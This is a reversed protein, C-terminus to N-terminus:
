PAADAWLEMSAKGAFTHMIGDPAVRRVLGGCVNRDIRRGTHRECFQSLVGESILVSGDSRVLIAEADVLPTDTAYMGDPARFSEGTGALTRITGDTEILRIVHNHEDNIFMRGDAAVAGGQPWNFRAQLAPGGDGTYGAIGVGAITSIQGKRDVRRIVHNGSDTIVLQGATDLFLGWPKRLRAKTAPGGDGERGPTGTGAITRIIGKPDVARIRNNGYDAIYLVGAKDVRVDFPRNLEAERALGHDGSDGRRGTGAVRILRGDNDIRLVKNNRSDAFYLRGQGDVCLGEPIGLDAQRALASEESNGQRGTGAIVHARGDPDVRWIVHRRDAIYVRGMADEALGMPYQLYIESAPGGDGIEGLDVDPFMTHEYAWRIRAERILSSKWVPPGAAIVLGAILTVGCAWRVTRRNRVAPHGLAALAFVGLGVAFSGRDALVRGKELYYEVTLGSAQGSIVANLAPLSEGYYASQILHPLVLYAVIMWLAAASALVACWYLWARPMRMFRGFLLGLNVTM